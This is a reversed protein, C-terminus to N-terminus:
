LCVGLVNATLTYKLKDMNLLYETAYIVGHTKIISLLVAGILRTYSNTVTGASIGAFLALDRVSANHAVSGAEYAISLHALLIYKDSGCQWPTREALSQLEALKRRM